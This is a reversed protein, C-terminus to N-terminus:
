KVLRKIRGLQRAVFVKFNLWRVHRFLYAQESLYNRAKGWTNFSTDWTKRQLPEFLLGAIQRTEAINDTIHLSHKGDHFINRFEEKKGLIGELPLNTSFFVFEVTRSPGYCNTAKDMVAARSKTWDQAKYIQGVFSSLSKLNIRETKVYCILAFGSILKRATEKQKGSIRPWLCAVYINDKWRLMEQMITDATSRHLGRSLFYAYDFDCKRSVDPFRAVTVEKDFFAAASLRHSGDLSIGDRDLPIVSLNEDFGKTKMDEILSDFAKVFAEFSTKDDRGPEKGDPNFVKIHELYLKLAGEPDERRHAIYYLKAFLDFKLGSLLSKAPVRELTCQRDQLGYIRVTHPQLRSIVDM